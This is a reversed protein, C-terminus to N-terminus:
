KKKIVTTGFSTSAFGDINLRLHAMHNLEDDNRTWYKRLLEGQGNSYPPLDIFKDLIKKGLNFNLPAVTHGSQTLLNAVDELHKKQFLVCPCNDPAEQDNTYNFETTHVAVGGPVLVNLSNEIFKLGDAISGLHELSCISWCFDFQGQLSEPIDNMDVYQLSVKKEFVARSVLDPYFVNELSNTYQSAEKWGMGVSKEPHLDTVLVEIGLSALYSPLPEEGCAFVIAKKGPLLMDTDRLSQLVYAFEWIKRHYIPPIHLQGCWYYFWQSEADEQTCTKSELPIRIPSTSTDYPITKRIERALHYGFNKINLKMINIDGTVHTLNNIELSLLQNTLSLLLKSRSDSKM